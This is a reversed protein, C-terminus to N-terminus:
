RACDCAGSGFSCGADGHPCAVVEPQPAGLTRYFEQIRGYDIKGVHTVDSVALSQGETLKHGGSGDGYWFAFDDPDLLDLGPMPPMGNSPAAWQEVLREGEGTDRDEGRLRFRRAYLGREGPCAGLHREGGHAERPEGRVCVAALGPDPLRGSM